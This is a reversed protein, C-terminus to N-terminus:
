TAEVIGERREYLRRFERSSTRCASSAAAGSSCHAGPQAARRSVRDGLLMREACAAATRLPCPRTPRPRARGRTAVLASPRPRRARRALREVAGDREAIEFAAEAYRRATSTPAHWAEDRGRDTASSAPRRRRRCVETLFEDCSGREREGTMTEGVVRGAALLALDAVQGRVDALARQREADIDAVAQERLREIEARTEAVGQERTEDAVRQARAIIDSAERRAEALVAQRQDAAPRATAAPPM